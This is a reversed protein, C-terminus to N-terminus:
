LQLVDCAISRLHADLAHNVVERQVDVSERSVCSAFTEIRKLNYYVVHLGQM